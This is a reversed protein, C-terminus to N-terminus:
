STLHSLIIGTAVAANLSNARGKKPITIKKTIFGNFNTSIGRSENGILLIGPSLSSINYVSEGELDAAYINVKHQQFLQELSLYAIKVRAISAMSSQVVKSNYADASNESCIIQHIGFWDAIRIITGLNGPDQIQDLAITWESFHFTEINTNPIECVALIGEPNKQSSIKKFDKDSIFEVNDFLIDEVSNNQQWGQAIIIIKPKIKSQLLEIVIKSGEALFLNEQNRYKKFHLRKINKLDQQFLAM